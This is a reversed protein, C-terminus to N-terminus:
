ARPLPQCAPMLGTRPWIPEPASGTSRSDDNASDILPLPRSRSASAKRRRGMGTIPRMSSSVSRNSMRVSLSSLPASSDAKAACSASSVGQDDAGRPVDVVALSCQDFRQGADIGVAELFLLRAADRDVEAIGVAVEAVAPLQAEDVHRAVLAEHVVHQGAGDADIRREQDDRGCLADLRLGDLM